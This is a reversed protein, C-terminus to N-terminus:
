NGSVFQFSVLELAKRKVETSAGGSYLGYTIRPKEHGVIDAAINETVGANELMTTLTKRISHFVYLESFGMKKKLRGFRKGIANSRNGYKNFTLESLLYGDKSTDVLRKIKKIIKSHIPVLRVGADTKSDVINFYKNKLDINSSHLSCIEEIRAGTYAGIEILDSLVLDDELFATKHFLVVEDHSFPVWSKTKNLSSSNKRKTKKFKDPVVFPVSKEKSVENITQLYKYFNRCNSFIRSVTSPSLVKDSDLNDIWLEVNDRTLLNTTPFFDVLRKVDKKMQDITKQKLGRSSELQIWEQTLTALLRRKGAAILKFEEGIIPDKTSSIEAARTDIIERVEARLSGSSAALNMLLSQAERLLPDESKHRAQSIQIKWSLVFADARKQALRVDGTETSKSFKTKNLQLRADKPVYLVAFYINHRLELHAARFAKNAM